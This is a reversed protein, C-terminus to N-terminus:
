ETPASQESAGLSNTRCPLWTRPTSETGTCGPSACDGSLRSDLNATSALNIGGQTMQIGPTGLLDPKSSQLCPGVACSAFSTRANRLRTVTLRSDRLRTVTLMAGRATTSTAHTPPVSPTDAQTARQGLAAARLQSPHINAKDTDSTTASTAIIPAKNSATAELRQLHQATFKLERGVRAPKSTPTVFVFSVHTAHKWLVNCLHM